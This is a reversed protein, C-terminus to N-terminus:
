RVADALRMAVTCLATVAISRTPADEFVAAQKLRLLLSVAAGNMAGTVPHLVQHRHHYLLM